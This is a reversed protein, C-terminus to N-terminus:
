VEEDEEDSLDDFKGDCDDGCRPCEECKYIDCYTTIDDYDDIYCMKEGEKRVM